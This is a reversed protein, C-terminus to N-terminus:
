SESIVYHTKLENLTDYRILREKQLRGVVIGPAIGISKAFAIVTDKSFVHKKVFASYSTPAILQDAAWRNAAVEDECSVGNSQDMHGLIIHALEHFLSFWFIDGDHGRATMGLVIKGGDLFVAGHLFSGSLHPVFVLAVGCLSLTERLKVSFNDPTSLTMQRIVPIQEILRAVNIPSVKFRRAELKAKQAWAMLALDAKDTIALRRCAIHTIMGNSLLTLKSVEWFQRLSFVKEKILRTAKVWGLSAMESYPLMRAIAEDNELDNEAKVKTLTERYNCELRNWFSAPVGLVSELRLAVDQTLQVDGNILRSVHKESLDMRAAFENQNMGRDVLMEKITTGPPIAIYTRSKLM